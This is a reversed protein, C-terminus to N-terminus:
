RSDQATGLQCRTNLAFTAAGVTRGDRRTMRLPCSDHGAGFGIFADQQLAYCRAVSIGEQRKVLAVGVQHVAHCPAHKVVHAQRFLHGLVDEHLQPLPALAVVRRPAPEGRPEQADCTECGDITQALFAPM